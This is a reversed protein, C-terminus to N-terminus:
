ETNCVIYFCVFLCGRISRLQRKKIRCIQQGAPPPVTAVTFLGVKPIIRASDSAATAPMTKVATLFVSQCYYAFSYYPLM